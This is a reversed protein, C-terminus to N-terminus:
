VKVINAPSTYSVEMVGDLQRISITGDQLKGLM